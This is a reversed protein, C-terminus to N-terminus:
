ASRAEKLRQMWRWVMRRGEDFQDGFTRRIAEHLEVATQGRAARQAEPTGALYRATCELCSDAVETSKHDREWAACATCTTTM